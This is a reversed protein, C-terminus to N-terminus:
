GATKRGALLQDLLLLGAGVSIATDAVNFIWPFFPVLGSFDLFDVVAGYRVRDFMNNGIAGGIVLALAIATVPRQVRYLWVAFGVAIGLQIVVLAWRAFGGAQLLGFSVGQNWRMSLDFWPSIEIRGCRLPDPLCDLANLQPQGLILAKSWQDLIVIAIAIMAGGIWYRRRPAVTEAQMAAAAGNAQTEQM